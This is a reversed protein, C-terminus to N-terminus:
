NNKKRLFVPWSSRSVLLPNGSGTLFNRRAPSHISDSTTKNQRGHIPRGWREFQTYLLYREVYDWRFGDIMIVALKSEAVQLCLLSFAALFFAADVASLRKRIAM